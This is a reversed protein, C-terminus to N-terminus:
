AYSSDKIKYIVCHKPCNIGQHMRCTCASSNTSLQHTNIRGEEGDEVGKGGGWGRGGEGGGWGRRRGRRWGRGGERRGM